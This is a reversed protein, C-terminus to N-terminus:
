WFNGWSGTYPPHQWPLFFLFKDSTAVASFAFYITLSSLAQLFGRPNPLCSTRTYRSVATETTCFSHFASSHEIVIVSFGLCWGTLQHVIVVTRKAWNSSVQPWCKAPGKPIHSRGASAQVSQPIYGLADQRSHSQSHGVKKHRSKQRKSLTVTCGRTEM